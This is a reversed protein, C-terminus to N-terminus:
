FIYAIVEYGTSMLGNKTWSGQKVQCHRLISHKFATEGVM